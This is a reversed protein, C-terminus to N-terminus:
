RPMQPPKDEMGGRNRGFDGNMDGGPQGGMGGRGGMMGSDSSYNESDMTIEAASTGGSIKGSNTYGNEDAGDVSAGCVITYTEGTKIKPSSVVVSSFNKTSTISAIVNGSSDALVCTTDASQADIVSMITCQGSGNVTEAMGVAGVAILTGGTITGTSEYDIAGNGDNSPGNVLITGGNITLDGNSDLGDGQADVYIYGGNIVLQSGSDSDFMGGKNGNGESSSANFGDDSSIISINGNNVTIEDAEIGENSKSINIAGGEIKLSNDSHIGVDGASITFDGEDIRLLSSSQM